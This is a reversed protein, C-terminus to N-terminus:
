KADKAIGSNRVARVRKSRTHDEVNMKDEHKVMRGTISLASDKAHSIIDTKFKSRNTGCKKMFRSMRIVPKYSATHTANSHFSTVKFRSELSYVFSDYLCIRMVHKYPM